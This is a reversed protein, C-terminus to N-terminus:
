VPNRWPRPHRHRRGIAVDRHRTRRAPAAHIGAAGTGGAVPRRPHTRAQRLYRSNAPHPGAGASRRDERHQTTALRHSRSRVVGSRCYVSAVAGAIEALKGSGILTAPTPVTATNCSSAPSKPARASDGADQTRGSIRGRHIGSYQFAAPFKECAGDRAAQAGSSISKTPKKKVRYDLGVLFAREARTGATTSKLARRASEAEAVLRSGSSRM